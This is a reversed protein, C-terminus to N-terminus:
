SVNMLQFLLSLTAISLAVDQSLFSLSLLFFFFFFVPSLALFHSLCPLSSSFLARFLTIAIAILCFPVFSPAISIATMLDIFYGEFTIEM